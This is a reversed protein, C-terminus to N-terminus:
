TGALQRPQLQIDADCRRDDRVHPHTEPYIRQDHVYAGERFFIPSTYEGTLDKWRVRGFGVEVFHPHLAGQGIEDKVCGTRLRLIEGLM